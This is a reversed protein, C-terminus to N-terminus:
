DAQAPEDRNITTAIASCRCNEQYRLDSHNVAEIVAHYDFYQDLEVHDEWWSVPQIPNSRNYGAAGTFAFLDSRNGPQRACQNIIIRLPQWSSADGM